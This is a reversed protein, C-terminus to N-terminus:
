VEEQFIEARLPTGSRLPIRFEPMEEVREFFEAVSAFESSWLNGELTRLDATPEYYMTCHLQEMGIYEGGEEHAFQRTLDLSFQEPASFSYVGVQFLFRDDACAVPIKAFARFVRLAVSPDPRERDFGAEGLMLDLTELAQRTAIV